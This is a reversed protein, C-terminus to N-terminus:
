ETDTKDANSNRVGTKAKRRLEPQTTVKRKSDRVVGLLFM